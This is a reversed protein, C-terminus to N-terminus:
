CAANISGIAQLYECIHYLFWKLSCYGGGFAQVGLSM